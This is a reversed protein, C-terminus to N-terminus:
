TISTASKGFASFVIASFQKPAPLDTSSENESGSKDSSECAQFFLSICILLIIHGISLRM